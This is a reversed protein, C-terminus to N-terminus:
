NMCSAINDNTMANAADIHHTTNTELSTKLDGSSRGVAGVIVDQGLKEKRILVFWGRAERKKTQCIEFLSSKCCGAVDEKEGDM